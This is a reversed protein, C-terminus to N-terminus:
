LLLNFIKGVFLFVTAVILIIRLIDFMWGTNENGFKKKLIDFIAFLGWILVFM